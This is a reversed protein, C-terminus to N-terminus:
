TSFAQEYLSFIAVTFVPLVVLAEPSRSYLRLRLRKSLPLFLTGHFHLPKLLVGTATGCHAAQSRTASCM